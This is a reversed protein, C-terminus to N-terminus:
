AAEGIRATIKVDPGVRDVHTISIPLADDLTLFPGAVAPAGTGAALRAGIYIILGQVAGSDLFSRALTAGGEVLLSTVGRHGLTDLAAGIDVGGSGDPELIIPERGMIMADIPIPREGKFVVPIPQRGSYGDLRVTLLPDDALVTGAGVAVADNQSRLYHADNRSEPSTIWQSTGDLAAIQGDLTVALKLTVLPRGTRRHHFYSVDNSEVLESLDSELVEIGAARLRQVGRGRVRPDPDLAGVIVSKIGSDIIADTCPPTAGHHDCPELTVVMTDQTVDTLGELALREAHPQGPHQHAGVSRVTGEPSVVVAGVRPNPHPYTSSTADLAVRMLEDVAVGDFQNDVARRMFRGREEM